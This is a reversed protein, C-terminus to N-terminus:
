LKLLVRKGKSRPVPLLVPSKTAQLLMFPIVAIDPFSIIHVIVTAVATEEVSKTIM